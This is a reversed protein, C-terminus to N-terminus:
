DCLPPLKEQVVAQLELSRKYVFEVLEKAEKSLNIDSRTLLLQLKSHMLFSDKGYEHHFRKVAEALRRFNREKKNRQWLLWGLALGFLVFIARYFLMGPHQALETGVSDGATRADMVTDLIAAGLGFIFGFFLEKYEQLM